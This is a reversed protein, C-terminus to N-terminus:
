ANLTHEYNKKNSFVEPFFVNWRLNFEELVKSQFDKPHHKSVGRNSRMTLELKETSFNKFKKSWHRHTIKMFYLDLYDGLKGMLIRELFHVSKSKSSTVNFSLKQKFHKFYKETWANRKKMDEILLPNYVPVLHTIEVATFINKDIIELNEEDVFYNLCFYKRSNLLFLKKFLILLTRCLWLRGSSTIIFYDIDGNRHMVNKSLSGSIAIARVFPFSRILRSYFPLKKLYASAMEEKKGRQIVLETINKDISYYSDYYFVKGTAELFKLESEVDQQTSFCSCFDCLEQFKLPHRFIDFYCLAQLIEKQLM